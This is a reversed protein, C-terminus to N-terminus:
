TAPGVWTMAFKPPASNSTGLVRLQVGSSQMVKLTVFESAALKVVGSVAQPFATTTQVLASVAVTSNGGKSIEIQRIGTASDNGWYVYGSVVYIGAIPATLRSTNSSTDHVAGVDFDETNFAITSTGNPIDHQSLNSSVSAAPFGTGFSGPV